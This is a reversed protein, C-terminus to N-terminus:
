ARANKGNHPQVVQREAALRSQFREANANHNLRLENRVEEVGHIREIIQELARKERRQAVSGVLRVVGNEVVVEVDSADIFGQRAIVDCVEERIREDPRKYGKPGRNFHPGREDGFAFASDGWADAGFGHMGFRDVPWFDHENRAFPVRDRGFFPSRASATNWGQNIENFSPDNLHSFRDVGGFTNAFGGLHSQAFAARDYPHGAFTATRHDWPNTFLGVNQAFPTGFHGVNQAFPTGFHGVNQAFPTGFLALNREWPTTFNGFNRDFSTTGVFPTGFLALNREWPTTFNRDFPTTGVFPTGFLALNREWPTTFIGFNRDFSTTGTFPTGFLAHNREWPTTGALQTMGFIAANREFPTMGLLGMNAVNRDFQNMGFLGANAINREFPTMGALQTMGFLAANREFPTLGLLGVNPIHRDFPTTGFFGA